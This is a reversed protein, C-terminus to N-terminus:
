ELTFTAEANNSVGREETEFKIEYDGSDWSQNTPVRVWATLDQTDSVSSESPVFDVREGEPNYTTFSYEGLADITAEEKAVSYEFIAEVTEGKEFVDKETIEGAQSDYYSGTETNWIYPKFAVTKGINGSTVNYIGVIDKNVSFDVKATEGSKVTVEKEKVTEDGAKVVVKHNNQVGGVNEVTVTGEVSEGLVVESKQVSINTVQFDAPNRVEFEESINGVEVTHSGIDYGSLSFVETTTQGIEAYATRKEVTEGDVQLEIEREGSTSGTNSLSVSVETSEGQAIRGPNINISDVQLNAGSTVKLDGNLSGVKVPYNGIDQKQVTFTLIRSDGGELKVTRQKEESGNLKLNYTREGSQSGSNEIKTSINVEQGAEAESPSVVLYKSDFDGSEFLGGFFGTIFRWTKEIGSLEKESVELTSSADKYNYTLGNIKENGQRAELSHKGLNELSLSVSNGKAIKEGNLYLNPQAKVGEESGTSIKVSEYQNVASEQVDINLSVDKVMPSERDGLIQQLDTEGDESTDQGTELLTRNESIECPGWGYQDTRADYSTTSERRLFIGSFSDYWVTESYSPTEPRTTATISVEREGELRIAEITGWPNVTIEDSISEVTYQTNGTKVTEGESLDTNIWHTTKELFNSGSLERNGINVSYTEEEDMDRVRVSGGDIEQYTWSGSTKERSETGDVCTGISVEQTSMKMGDYPIVDSNASVSTVAVTMLFLILVAKSARYTWSIQNEAM